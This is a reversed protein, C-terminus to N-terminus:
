VQLVEIIRELEGIFDEINNNQVVYIFTCQYYNHYIEYGRKTTKYRLLGYKM